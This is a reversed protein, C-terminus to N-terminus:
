TARRFPASPALLVLPEDLLPEVRLNTEHGSEYVLGLDAQDEVIWDHITDSFGDRLQVSISPFRKRCKTLLQPALLASTMSPMAVRVRGVPEEALALVDREIEDLESM